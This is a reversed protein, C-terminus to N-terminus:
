CKSLPFSDPVRSSICVYENDKDVSLVLLETYHPKQHGLLGVM